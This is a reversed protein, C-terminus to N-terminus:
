TSEAASLSETATKPARESDRESDSDRFDSNEGLESDPETQLGHHIRLQAHAHDELSM